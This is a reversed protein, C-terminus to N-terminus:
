LLAERQKPKTPRPKKPAATAGSRREDDAREGNLAILRALVDDRVADPWRYRYPKKKTGWETEDIEYDLLFECDTPVDDWGYALLVARDMETHLERLRFISPDTENPDHFRNYTKTLGEDHDIMLQARFDCYTQGVSELSPDTTWDLPFPFTEFCDSPTYRLRDELTSGFFRAWLEHPRSQLACFAANTDLPFVITAHSFLANTPWFRLALHPSVQSLVMCRDTLAIAAQLTGAYSGYQWWRQRRRDAVGYGGLKDREPKVKSRLIDLLAPWRQAEALTLNGFDIIYREVTERSRTNVDEGGVFPKIRAANRRDKSLAHMMSLPSAIPNKDDFTFGMGYVMSGRYSHRANASLRVPDHDKGAMLYSNIADVPKEDLIPRLGDTRSIHVVSVVVAALGPWPVRRRASYIHGGQKLIAHLGAHRTDGQGITNTAILGVTGSTRTLKFTQRFFHAVLDVAKGGTDSHEVKLWDRYAGGLAGWVFHGGMFPPNGVIVDFGPDPRDFVEPLEVEWHFPALPREAHRLEGLWARRAGATGNVIEDAYAVRATERDKAKEGSFFAELLLDGYLRVDSLEHEAEDWLDRLAADSVEDGAERIATRLQTVRDVASGIRIAAFSPAGAKWDFTEIQRRDLGVLSDGHRLAHDLFTLPHESALTVLWLSMKALDVAVPNRDVGYLCRQAILRRAYTVADEDPPIEPRGGYVDWSSVLEDGLQRCAEVLFAASGM